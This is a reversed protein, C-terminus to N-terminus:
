HVGFISFHTTEGYIINNLTDIHTTIPVWSNTGMFDSCAEAVDRMNVIGDPVGPTPGTVDCRPEWEESGGPVMFKSCFVSIDRMNVVGDLVGPTTGTVDCGKWQSLQLNDEEEQTMNTDDYSVAVTIKGYSVVTVTVDVYKGVLGPLSPMWGPLTERKCSSAFGTRTLNAFTLGVDPEPYVTINLGATAHALPGMFPYRDSNNVGVVYPTDGIGDIGTMNQFIGSFSDTGNYDSWYNGGSPYGEDWMNTSNESYAQVSNNVFSNHFIFDGSSAFLQIGYQGNNRVDNEVITNNGLISDFNSCLNLVIGSGDNDTVNNGSATNNSSWSLRIGDGTSNTIKNGVIKNDVLPGGDGGDLNIGCGASTTIINGTITNNSSLWQLIIGDGSAGTINNGSVINDCSDRVLSIGGGTISNESINNNSCSIFCRISGGIVANGSINNNRTGMYLYIDGAVGNACLTNNDSNSTLSVGGTVNNGSISNYSSSFLQIGGEFEKIQTNKITVNSSTLDIGTGNGSGQITYGDGDIVIDSREVVIGDADSTINGTLTYTVNDVTSIPAEPPDISGDARIYITGSARVVPVNLTVGFVAV